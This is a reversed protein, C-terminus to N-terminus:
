NQLIKKLPIFCLFDSRSIIEVEPLLNIERGEKSHFVIAQKVPPPLDFEAVLDLGQAPHRLISGNKGQVIKNSSNKEYEVFKGIDHLLAGAILLDRNLFNGLNLDAYVDYVSIVTKTVANIHDILTVMPKHNGIMLEPILLTFPMEELDKKSWNGVQIAKEFSKVVKTKLIEDKIEDIIPILEKINVSMYNEKIEM